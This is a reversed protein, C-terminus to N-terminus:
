PKACVAVAVLTRQSGSNNVARVAWSQPTSGATGGNPFSYTVFTTATANFNEFYGGGGVAREAYACEAIAYASQGNNVLIESERQVV